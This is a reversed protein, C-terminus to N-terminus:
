PTWLSMIARTFAHRGRWHYFWSTKISRCIKKEKCKKWSSHGGCCPLVNLEIRNKKHQRVRRHLPSSCQVRPVGCDINLCRGPFCSLHNGNSIISDNCIKDIKGHISQSVKWALVKSDFACSRNRQLSTKTMITTLVHIRSKARFMVVVLSSLYCTCVSFFNSKCDTQYYMSLM